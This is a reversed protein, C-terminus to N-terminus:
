FKRCLIFVSCRSKVSPTQAFTNGSNPSCHSLHHLVFREAAMIKLRQSGKARGQPPKNAEALVGRSVGPQRGLLMLEEDRDAAMNARLRRGDSLQGLRELDLVVRRNSQNIPDLLATQRPALRRRDIVAADMHHDCRSAFVHQSGEGGSMSLLVTLKGAHEPIQGLL